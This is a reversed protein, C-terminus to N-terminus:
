PSPSVGLTARMSDGNACISFLQSSSLAGDIIQEAIAPQRLLSEIERALREPDSLGCVIGCGCREAFKAAFSDHPAHVLVPRGSALYEGYKLPSSTRILEPYGTQFGLALLLVDARCQVRAVELESVAGHWEVSPPIGYRARRREPDHTYIHMRVHHGKTRLIEVAIACNRVADAQAEYVAGTYVICRERGVVAPREREESRVRAYLDLDVPNRIVHVPARTRQSVDEALLENPVIVGTAGELAESEVRKAL